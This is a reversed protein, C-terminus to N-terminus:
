QGSVEVPASGPAAATAQVTGDPFKFGGSTSEVLGNASVAAQAGLPSVAFGVGVSLAAGMAAVRLKKTQTGKM